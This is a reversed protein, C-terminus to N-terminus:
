QAVFWHFLECVQSPKINDTDLRALFIAVSQSTQHNSYVSGRHILFPDARINGALIWDQKSNIAVVWYYSDALYIELEQGNPGTWSYYSLVIFEPCDTLEVIKNQKKIVPKWQIEDLRYSQIIEMPIKPQSSSPQSKRLGLKLFLDRSYSVDSIDLKELIM